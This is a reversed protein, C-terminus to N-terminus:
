LADLAQDWVVTQGEIQVNKTKKMTKKTTVGCSITVFYEKTVGLTKIHPVNHARLVLLFKCLTSCSTNFCPGTVEVRLLEKGQPESIRTTDTYPEQVTRTLFPNFRRIASNRSPTSGAPSSHHTMEPSRPILLSRSVFEFHNGETGYRPIAPFDKTRLISPHKPYSRRGVDHTGFQSPRGRSHPPGSPGSQQVDRVTRPSVWPV